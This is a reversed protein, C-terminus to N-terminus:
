GFLYAYLGFSLRFRKLYFNGTVPLSFSYENVTLKKEDPLYASSDIYLFTKRVEKLQDFRIGASLSFRKSLFRNYQLSFDFTYTDYYKYQWYYVIRKSNPTWGNPNVINVVTKNTFYNYIGNASIILSQKKLRKVLSDNKQAYLEKTNIGISL